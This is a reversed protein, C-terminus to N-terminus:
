KTLIACVKEETTLRLHERNWEFSPTTDLWSVIVIDGPQVEKCEPGISIAEYYRLKSGEDKRTEIIYIRSGKERLSNKDVERMIIDTKLAKLTDM